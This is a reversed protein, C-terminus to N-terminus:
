GALTIIDASEYGKAPKGSTVTGRAGAYAGSGGVIPLSGSGDLKFFGSAVIQGDAVQYTATCLLTAAFVPKTSGAGTCSTALTGVKKKSADFLAGHTVVRDGLSFLRGSKSKPAVDDMAIRAAPEQFTITQGTPAQASSLMPVAIAAAMATATAVIVLGAPKLQM